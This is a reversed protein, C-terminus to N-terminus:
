KTPDSSFLAGEKLSYTSVFISPSKTQDLLFRVLVMAVVMMGARLPIMGPLKLRDELTLPLAKEYLMQFESATLIHMPESEVDTAPQNQSRNRMETLTDFSGACGVLQWSTKKRLESLLPALNESLWNQLALVQDSPIPDTQHFREMMRMGGIEFSRKWIVQKGDCLIFEVSGGGIDVVVSAIGDQLVGSAAVGSFILGAETEGDIVQIPFGTKARVTDVFASANEANRIASTGYVLANAPMIGAARCNSAFDTLADMARQTADPPILRSAMAGNRGLGVGTKKRLLVEPIGDKVRAILLQFTNTGLDLIARWGTIPDNLRKM